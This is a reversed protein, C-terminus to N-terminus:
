GGADRLGAEPDSECVVYGCRCRRGDAPVAAAERGPGAAADRCHDSCYQGGGPWTTCRCATAAVTVTTRWPM